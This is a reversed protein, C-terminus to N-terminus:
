GPCDPCFILPGNETDGAGRAASQTDEGRHVVWSLRLVPTETLKGSVDVLLGAARNKMDDAGRSVGAPIVSVPLRVQDHWYARRRAPPLWGAATDPVTGGCGESSM